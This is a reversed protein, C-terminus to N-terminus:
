TTKRFNYLNKLYIRGSFAIHPMEYFTASESCIPRYLPDAVIIRATKLKEEMAEEGRIVEDEQRLLGETIELPCLLQVKKGCKQEIAAALSGMTVPEGILTIDPTPIFGSLPSDKKRLYIVQDPTVKWLEEQRGSIQTGNKEAPNEKKYEFAEYFSGAAKELADSIEDEYGEVPTGVLFPTGFKERLVNAAPIGVSSVVLNVEAEGARGLEELTDGMAWTSLIEWGREELRKKMADVMPQPGFDLPTVGLLNLKRKRKEAAGTFHRAIESLALGAGYVYDHMGSTPVSFAPIGTEATLARALGPFDTGNMFPIPSSALAIFKPKLEEAVDEIDRLFKEDNGMIADIDTLGSIFILSDQDYWRIEDHTNYTSNCGSPDHMVTMGGLEYLASCVGSVDATYIPIIRYAQRM